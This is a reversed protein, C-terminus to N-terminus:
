PHALGRAYSVRPGILKETATGNDNSGDSDSLAGFLPSSFSQGALRADIGPRLTHRAYDAFIGIHGAVGSHRGTPQGSTTFGLSAYAGASILHGEPKTQSRLTSALLLSVGCVLFVRQSCRM